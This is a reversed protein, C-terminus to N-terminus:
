QELCTSLDGTSTQDCPQLFHSTNILVVVAECRNKRCVEIWETGNRSSHGDLSLLYSNEPLLINRVFQNIHTMGAPMVSMEMYCNETVKVVADSPFWDSNIFKHCLPDISHFSGNVPHFWNCMMRKGTIIFFPPTKRGSSSVAVVATIHKSM